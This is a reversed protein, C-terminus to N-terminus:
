LKEKYMDAEKITKKEAIELDECKAKYLQEIQEDTFICNKEISNDNLSQKLQFRSYSRVSSSMARMTPLYTKILNSSRSGYLVNYRFYTNRVSTKGYTFPNYNKYITKFCKAKQEVQSMQIKSPDSEIM